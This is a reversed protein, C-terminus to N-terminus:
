GWGQATTGAAAIVDIPAASNDSAGESWVIVMSVHTQGGSARASDTHVYTRIRRSRVPGPRHSTVTASTRRATAARPAPTLFTAM